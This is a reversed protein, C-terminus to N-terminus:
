KRLQYVKDTSYAKGNANLANLRVSLVAPFHTALDPPITFQGSAGTALIRFGQGDTPVEGSWVYMMSRTARTEKTLKAAFPIPVSSPLTDGTPEAITFPVKAPIMEIEQVPVYRSEFKYSKLMSEKRGERAILLVWPHATSPTQGTFHEGKYKKAEETQGTAPDMWIVDYGHKEVTVEVPPGPKEIYVLYEIEELAVARSADVDFYPELEWHRCDAVFDFWSKPEAHFPGEIVPYQGNMTANWLRGVPVVGVFPVQYFQHEVSGIQDNGSHDIVFNMWGDALFPASTIRANTSRPHDYPDLEKIALGVEKLLARGDVHGEFEEVGQWTLNFPAYRAILYTIFRKRSQWDPLVSALVDPNPALVLDTVMRRKHVALVRADFADFYAIDIRDPAPLIRKAEAASGLLTGRIHTFSSAAAAAVSQDFEAQSVSGFGPLVWGMWLHAKKNDTWWHHVNAPHVYGPSDSEAANFAGQKGELSALNSTFRYTWAGAETPTFRLVIRNGGGWFAPMMYTHFHPSRFEAHLEVTVYPNPNAAAEAPSLNFTFECPSYAPVGDCPTQASLCPLFVLLALLSVRAVM